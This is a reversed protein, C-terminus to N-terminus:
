RATARERERSDAAAAPGARRGRPARGGQRRRGLDARRSRAAGRDRRAGRGERRAGGRHDAARVPRHLRLPDVPIRRGVAPVAGRAAAHARRLLHQRGPLRPERRQIPRGDPVARRVVRGATRLHLRPVREHRARLRAAPAATPRLRPVRLVALHPDRHRRRERHHPPPPRRPRLDLGLPSHHARQAGVRHAGGHARQRFRRAERRPLLAHLRHPDLVARAARPPPGGHHVRRTPAEAARRRAPLARGGRGGQHRPVRRRGGCPPPDRPRGRRARRQAPVAPALGM